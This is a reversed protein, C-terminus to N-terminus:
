PVRAVALGLLSLAASAAYLLVVVSRSSLGSDALRYHLHARDAELVQRLRRVIGVISNRPWPSPPTTFFRRVVSSTTEAIPLAFILLPVMVALATAGKQAGTIATVGLVYGILLSGSDGLFIRAPDANYWLFGCLAGLLAAVAMAQAADGRAVLLVGCTAAAIIGLGTALGDLGDMLNFANTLVVIWALTVPAAFVGLEHTTGLVTVHEVRVGLAIVVAAAAILGALKTLPSISTLDDALGIAFVLAGGTGLAILQRLDVAPDMGLTAYGAMGATIAMAGSLAVAVGGIRPVPAPHRKRETPVDLAGVRVALRVVAPTLLLSAITAVVIIFAYKM